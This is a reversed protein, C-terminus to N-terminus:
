MDGKANPAGSTIMIIGDLTGQNFDAPAPATLLLATLLAAALMRLKRM